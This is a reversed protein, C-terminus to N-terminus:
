EINDPRFRAGEVRESRKQRTGKGLQEGEREKGKEPGGGRDAYIGESGRTIILKRAEHNPMGIDFPTGQDLSRSKFELTVLLSSGSHGCIGGSVSYMGGMRHTKHNGVAVGGM